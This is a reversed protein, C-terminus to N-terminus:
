LAQTIALISALSIKASNNTLIMNTSLSDSDIVYVTIVPFSSVDIFIWGDIKSFYDVFLHTEFKRGKGKMYSPSVDVHSGKFSKCQLRMPIRCDTKILDHASGNSSTRTLGAFENAIIDEVLLGIIRGDRLRDYLLMEPVNGLMVKGTLDIKYSRGMDM